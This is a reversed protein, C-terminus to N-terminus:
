RRARSDREKVWVMSRGSEAPANVGDEDVRELRYDLRRAVAASRVNAEDCHIEIRHIHPLGLLERTLAQVAKTIVGRGVHDSHCWYGIEVVGPGLQDEVGAMGLIEREASDFIGFQYSGDSPWRLAREFRELDEQETPPKAAWAMWPHLHDFSAVIAQRRAERDGRGWRRLVLDDAPIREPVDGPRLAPQVPNPDM